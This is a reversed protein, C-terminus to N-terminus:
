WESPVSAVNAGQVDFLVAPRSARKKRLCYCTGLRAGFASLLCVNTFSDAICYPLITEICTSLM